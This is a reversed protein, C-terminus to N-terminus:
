EEHTEVTTQGASALGSILKFVDFFIVKVIWIIGAWHLYSIHIGTLPYFLFKWILTVFIALIMSELLYYGMVPFLFWINRLNGM